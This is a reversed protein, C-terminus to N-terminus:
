SKSASDLACCSTPNALSLQLKMSKGEESSNHGSECSENSSKLRELLRAIQLESIMSCPALMEELLVGTGVLPM